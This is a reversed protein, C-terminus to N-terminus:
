IKYLEPPPSKWRPTRETNPEGHPIIKLNFSGLFIGM